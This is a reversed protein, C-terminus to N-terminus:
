QHTLDRPVTGFAESNQSWSGCIDLFLDVQLYANCRSDTRGKKGKYM